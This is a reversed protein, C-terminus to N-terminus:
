NSSFRLVDFAELNLASENAQENAQENLLVSKIQLNTSQAIQGVVEGTIAALTLGLHQHGFAYIVNNVTTCRGIAPLYDPLTPRAGIWQKTSAISNGSLGVAQGHETLTAWKNPDAPAEFSNFETFGALRTSSAFHTVIISRDEFAVPVTKSVASVGSGSPVEIHYGREAILPVNVGLDKMLAASQAGGAIVIQDADLITSGSITSGSDTKLQVRATKNEVVLKNVSGTIFSGGAKVFADRMANQLNPIDAIQGTGFFRLAAVPKNNFRAKLEDLEQASAERVTATGINAQLWFDRGRQATQETEWVVFHGADSVSHPSGISDALAQWAPLSKALLSSLASTGHAVHRSGVFRLMKLGFPLWTGIANLPLGVPGGFISLRRPISRLTAWSALPQTQETALHGANGWSAAAQRNGQDVVTVHWGLHQLNLACATGVFGAGIVIASRKTTQLNESELLQKSGL